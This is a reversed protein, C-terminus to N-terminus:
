KGQSTRPTKHNVIEPNLNSDPNRLLQFLTFFSYRNMSSIIPTLKKLLHLMEFCHLFTYVVGKETLHCFNEEM